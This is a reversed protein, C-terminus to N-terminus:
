KSLYKIVRGIQFQREEKNKIFEEWYEQNRQDETKQADSHALLHIHRKSTSSEKKQETLGKLKRSALFHEKLKWLRVRAADLDTGKPAEDIHTRFPHPQKSPLNWEKTVVRPKKQPEKKKTLNPYGIKYSQAAPKRPAKLPSYSHQAKREELFLSYVLPQKGSSFLYKVRKAANECHDSNLSEKKM